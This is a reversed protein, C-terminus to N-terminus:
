DLRTRLSSIYYSLQFVTMAYLNSPNYAKIVDFNHFGLWYQNRYYGQLPILRASLDDPVTAEPTIGYRSFDTVPIMKTSTNTKMLEQYHYGNITAQVAVPQNTKWGHKKYYNAISAIIDGENHSLDIHTHGTYSVAFYRYSSPMFQPQGIAGAYSGMVKRPNLHQERCLLLFEELEQRFFGARPSNSFGINALADIVPYEGTNKGYKTEVGITAVIISAPVGYKKETATLITAYKNWFQAGQRIRSETIFLMQYLYWPKQELPAKVSKIIRPRVKITSFLATLDNQKFHHKKVMHNIFNKVDTRNAFTTSATSATAFLLLSLGLVIKKIM